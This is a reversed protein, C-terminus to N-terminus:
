ESWEGDLDALADDGAEAAFLWMAAAIIGATGLIVLPSAALLTLATTM